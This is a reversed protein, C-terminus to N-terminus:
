KLKGVSGSDRIRDKRACTFREEVDDQWRVRHYPSAGSAGLFNRLRGEGYTPEIMTNLWVSMFAPYFHHLWGAREYEDSNTPVESCGHHACLLFREVCALAVVERDAVVRITGSVWTETHAEFIPDDSQHECSGIDEGPKFLIFFDTFQRDRIM